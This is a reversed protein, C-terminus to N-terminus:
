EAVLQYLQKLFTETAIALEFLMSSRANQRSLTWLKRFNQFELSFFALRLLSLFPLPLLSFFLFFLCFSIFFSPFSSVFFSLFLFFSVFLSIFFSFSPFHPFSLFLHIFSVLSFSSCLFTERNGIDESSGWQKSANAGNIYPGSQLKTNFYKNSFFFM